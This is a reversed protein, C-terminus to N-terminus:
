GRKAAWAASPLAFGAAILWIFGLFRTLPILFLAIPFILALWSLEGAVALALGLVVIWRPLLKRFGATVSIGAMLLGFPAAFGPGGLAFSLSFLSQLIAPSQTVASSGMVWIISGAAFMNLAAAFGGFLAIYAGAARIGLFRLRSVMTATFIGLPIAAGFQLAGFLGVSPGKSQFFALVANLPDGPKPFGPKGDFPSILALGALFVLAYAIAVFGPSPGAHRARTKPDSSVIVADERERTSENM